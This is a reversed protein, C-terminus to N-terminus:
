HTRLPGVAVLGRPTAVFLTERADCWAMEVSAVGQLAADLAPEACPLEIPRANGVGFSAVIARGEHVRLLLLEERDEVSRDTIGVLGEVEISSWTAGRDWSHWVREHDVMALLAGSRSASLRAARAAERELSWTSLTQWDGDDGRFRALRVSDGELEGGRADEVSLLLLEDSASALRQAGREFVRQPTAPPSAIVWLAEGAIAWVRGAVIALSRIPRHADFLALPRENTGVRGFHLLADGTAVVAGSKHLAVLSGPAPLSGSRIATDGLGLEVLEAGVAVVKGAEAIVDTFAGACLWGERAVWAPENSERGFGSAALERMLDDVDFGAGADADLDPLASEDVEAAIDENTGEVGGDDKEPQDDDDIEDALDLALATSDPRHPEWDGSFPPDGVSRASDDFAHDDDPHEIGPEKASPPGVHSRGRLGEPPEDFVDDDGIPLDGSEADDSSADGTSDIDDGPDGADVAEDRVEGDLPALEDLDSEQDLGLDVSDEDRPHKPHKRHKPQSTPLM